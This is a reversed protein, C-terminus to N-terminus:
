RTRALTGATHEVTLVMRVLAALNPAQMKGLVMARHLEVTRPSLGLTKAIEKNTRGEAILRMVEHERPTLLRMRAAIDEVAAQEARQQQARNLADEVAALLVENAFPKEIFHTAGARMARVAMPVDGHGTMVIVPLDPRATALTAQLKLGDIDPMRVDTVVCGPSLTALKDLLATACPYTEAHYGAAQLLFATSRLVDPNDDVLHVTYRTFDAPM